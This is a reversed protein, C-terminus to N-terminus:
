TANQSKLSNLNALYTGGLGGGFDVITSGKQVLHSLIDRLTDQKPAKRFVTGDREYSGEGELVKRMADEVKRIIVLSDYGSSNGEAEEWTEFPGSFNLHSSKLFPGLAKKALGKLSRGLKGLTTM